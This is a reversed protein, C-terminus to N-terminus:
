GGVVIFSFDTNAGAGGETFSTVTATTTSAMVAKFIKDNVATATVMIHAGVNMATSFVINYVGAGAATVSTVNYVRGTTGGAAPVGAHATVLNLANVTSISAPTVTTDTVVALNTYTGRWPLAATGLDDQSGAAPKFAQGNAVTVSIDSGLAISSTVASNVVSNTNTQSFYGNAFYTGSAGMNYTNSAAVTTGGLTIAQSASFVVGIGYHGNGDSQFAPTGSGLTDIITIGAQTLGGNSWRFQIEGQQTVAGDLVGVASDQATAGYFRIRSGTQGLGGFFHPAISLMDVLGGSTSQTYINLPSAGGGSSLNTSPNITVRSSTNFATSVAYLANFTYTGASAGDLSLLWNATSASASQRWGSVRSASEARNILQFYAGSSVAQYASAAVIAHSSTDYTPTATQYFAFVKATNDYYASANSAYAGIFGNALGTGNPTITGGSTLQVDAGTSDEYFLETRGSQVAAFVTVTKAGAPKAIASFRSYSQAIPGFGAYSLDANINIGASPVKVGKGTTHDHADVTTGLATNLESAWLPGVEGLVVPLVLQMNPSPALTVAM